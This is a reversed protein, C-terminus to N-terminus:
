VGGSSLHKGYDHAGDSKNFTWSDQNGDQESLALEITISYLIRM